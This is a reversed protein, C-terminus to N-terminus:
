HYDMFDIDVAEDEEFRFVVRWNHTVRISWYGALDGTLPHLRFGPDTLDAPREAMNLRSLIRPCTQGGARVSDRAKRQRSFALIAAIGQAQDERHVGYLLTVDHAFINGGRKGGAECAQHSSRGHFVPSFRARPCDGAGGM